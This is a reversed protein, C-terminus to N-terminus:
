ARGISAHRMFQLIDALEKMSEEFTMPVGGHGKKNDCERV